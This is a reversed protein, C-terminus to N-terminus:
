RRVVRFGIRYDRSDPYLGALYCRNAVRLNQAPHQWSGGRFVRHTGSSPGAPNTQSASTYTGYWDWCWELVNGSLDYLDLENAQRNGVDHTTASSNTLYWAVTGSDNSGSFKYGQTLSGGRAAYEWEAETPLRYGTAYFNCTVNIGDIYYCPNLGAQQSLLNCFNVADYWNVQEVPHNAGSFYSPTAVMIEQWLVQAVEYRSIYFSNLTVLHTPNEDVLGDGWTDGMTFTGGNVFVMQLPEPYVHVTLSLTDTANDKDKVEMIVEYDGDATYEFDVQRDTDYDIEWNQDNNFDWRYTLSTGDEEDSCTAADFHFLKYNSGDRSVTFDAVPRSNVFITGITDVQWGAADSLQVRVTKEGGGTDFIHSFVQLENWPTDYVGNNQWDFRILLKQFETCNDTSTTGDFQFETENTFGSDPFIMLFLQPPTSDLIIEATIKESEIEFDNIFKAYVRKIGDGATLQYSLLASWPQWALGTFTSDESVKVQVNSGNVSLALKVEPLIAYEANNNIVLGPNMPKPNITDSLVASESNDAYKVKLFVIKAGAGGSLIWPKTSVYNEWVAGAFEGNGSLIMQRATSALITLTVTRSLAFEAGDNIFFAPSTVITVAATNTFATELNNDNIASIRYWYRHGNEINKDVYTDKSKDLSQIPNYGGPDSESRYIIFGALGNVQPSTWSLTIGGAAIVATLRFPDGRTYPNQDDFPNDYEPQVPKKDCTLTLLLILTLLLGQKIRMNGGRYLPTGLRYTWHWTLFRGSNDPYVLLYASKNYRVM